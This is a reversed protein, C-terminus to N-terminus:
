GIQAYMFGGAFIGILYAWFGFGIDYIAIEDNSYGMDNLLLRLV